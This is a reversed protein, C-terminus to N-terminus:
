VNFLSASQRVVSQKWEECLKYRRRLTERRHIAFATRKGELAELQRQIDLLNLLLANELELAAETTPVQITLMMATEKRRHHTPQRHAAVPAACGQKRGQRAPSRWALGATLRSTKAKRPTRRHPVGRGTPPREGREGQCPAAKVEQRHPLAKGEATSGPLSCRGVQGWKSLLPPSPPVSRRAHQVAQGPPPRAHRGFPCRRGQQPRHSACRASCLGWCQGARRRM